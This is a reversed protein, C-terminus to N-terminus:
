RSASRSCTRLIRVISRGTEKEESSMRSSFTRGADDRDDRGALTLEVELDLDETVDWREEGLLGVKTLVAGACPLIALVLRSVEVVVRDGLSGDAGSESGGDDVDVAWSPLPNGEDELSSFTPGM